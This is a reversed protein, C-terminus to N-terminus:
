SSASSYKRLGLTWQLRIILFFFFTALFLIFLNDLTLNGQLAAVSLNTSLIVPILYSFGLQVLKPYVQLPKSGLQVVQDSASLLSSADTFWFSFNVSFQNILYVIFVGVGLTIAYLFLDWIGLVLNLGSVGQYVIWIPIPLNLLSPYDVRQLSSFLQADIPRILDCDLEGFRIKGVFEDHAIEFLYTYLCVIINFSGLLIYFSNKDWDGLKDGFQYYVNVTLIEAILFVISFLVTLLASMRYVALCKLSIKLYLCHLRLFRIMPKFISLKM